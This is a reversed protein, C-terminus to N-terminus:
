KFTEDIDTQYKERNEGVLCVLLAVDHKLKGTLSTSQLMDDLNELSGNMTEFDTKLHRIDYILINGDTSGVVQYFIFKMVYINIIVNEFM